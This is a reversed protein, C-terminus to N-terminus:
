PKKRQGIAYLHGSTRLFLQGESVAPSSLTYEALDNEALVEFQPGAKIVSTVGDENTVYIKGDALVPSASYSGPKVRQRGYVEKGTKADFCFVIGRDNVVYFLKGDTVPTPVYTGFDTSWVLHSKSVDGRGGARLVLLPRVKGPVYILGDSVIPSSVINNNATREPNLGGARWLEKGTAPDHGTVYDGGSVVIEVGKGVRLLAPTTYADPSESVADTPREVRWLTKGTKKDVRMVYSPDDTTMGHLVQVYLSDEYLLPSSAYGWKLGFAGYDKQIDRAWLERGEFDFGKLVGTGTMVWVSKGDTVPSPSAMNHKRMMMNGGGLKRKWLVAGKSRDVCWLSLDEKEAVNLFVREGWVIPTSGSRDPMALKWAVNESATWKVPLNREASVGNLDPGRWQPWNANVAAAFLVVLCSTLFLRRM